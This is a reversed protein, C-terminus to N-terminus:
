EESDETNSEENYSVTGEIDLGYVCSRGEYEEGPCSVYVDIEEERNSIEDEIAWGVQIRHGCNECDIHSPLSEEDFHHTRLIDGVVDVLEAEVQLSEIEPHVETYSEYSGSSFFPEDDRDM